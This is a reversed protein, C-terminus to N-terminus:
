NTESLWEEYERLGREAGKNLSEIAKIHDDTVSISVQKFLNYGYSAVYINLMEKLKECQEAWEKAVQRAANSEDFDKYRTVRQEIKKDVEARM